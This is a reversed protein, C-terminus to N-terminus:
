INGAHRAGFSAESKVPRRDSLPSCDIKTFLLVARKYMDHLLKIIKFQNKTLTHVLGRFKIQPSTTMLGFSLSRNPWAQCSIATRHGGGEEARRRSAEEIGQVLKGWPWSERVPRAQKRANTRPRVTRCSSRHILGRVAEQAVHPTLGVCPQLVRPDLEDLLEKCCLALEKRTYGVEVAATLLAETHTKLIDPYDKPLAAPLRLLPREGM